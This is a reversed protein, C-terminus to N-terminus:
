SRTNERPTRVDPYQSPLSRLNCPISVRKPFASMANNTCDTPSPQRWWGRWPAPGGARTSGGQLDGVRLPVTRRQAYRHKAQRQCTNKQLLQLWSCPARVSPLRVSRPPLPRTVHLPRRPSSSTSSRAWYMGRDSFSAVARTPAQRECAHESSSRPACCERIFQTTRLQRQRLDVACLDVLLLPADASLHARTRARM